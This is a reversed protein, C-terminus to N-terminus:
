AYDSFHPNYGTYSQYTFYSGILLYNFDCCNLECLWPGPKNWFQSFMLRTKTQEKPSRIFIITGNSIKGCIGANKCSINLGGYLSLIAHFNSLYRM